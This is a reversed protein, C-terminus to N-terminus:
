IIYLIYSFTCVHSDEVLLVYQLKGEQERGITQKETVKEVDVAITMDKGSVDIESSVERDNLDYKCRFNITIEAKTYM